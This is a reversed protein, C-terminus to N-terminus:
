EQAKRMTKTATKVRVTQDKKDPVQVSTQLLTVTDDEISEKIHDQHKIEGKQIEKDVAKKKIEDAKNDADQADKVRAAELAAQKDTSVSITAGNTRRVEPKDKKHEHRLDKPKLRETNFNDAVLKNDDKKEKVPQNGNRLDVYEKHMKEFKAVQDERMIEVRLQVQQGNVMLTVTDGAKFHSKPHRFHRNGVVMGFDEAKANKLEEPTADKVFKTVTIGGHRVDLTMNDLAAKPNEMMIDLNAESTMLSVMKKDIMVSVNELTGQKAFDNILVSTQEAEAEQENELISISDQTIESAATETEISVQENVINETMKSETEDLGFIMDEFISFDEDEDEPPGINVERDGLSEASDERDNELSQFAEKAAANINEDKTNASSKHQSPSIRVENSTQLVAPKINNM